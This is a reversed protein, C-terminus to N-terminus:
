CVSELDDSEKFTPVVQNAYRIYELLAEKPPMGRLKKWLETKDSPHTIFYSGYDEYDGFRAQKYLGYLTYFHEDDLLGQSRAISVKQCAIKFRRVLVFGFKLILVSSEYLNLVFSKFSGFDM